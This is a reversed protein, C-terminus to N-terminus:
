WVVYLVSTPTECSAIFSITSESNRLTPVQRQTNTCLQTPTSVRLALSVLSAIYVLSRSLSRAFSSHSYSASSSTSWRSLPCPATLYPSLYLLFVLDLHGFFPTASFQLEVFPPQLPIVVGSRSYPFVHNVEFFALQRRVDACPQRSATVTSGKLFISNENHLKLSVYCIDM